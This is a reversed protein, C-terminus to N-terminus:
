IAQWTQVILKGFGKARAVIEKETWTSISVIEKSMTVESKAYHLTKKDKFGKNQADRNIKEGLITLNGLHWIFPELASANPWSAAKPNQPFVHELNAKDMGIEKTKTQMANALRTMLWLGEGRELTVSELSAKVDDDTVVLARLRAKAAALMKASTADEAYLNRIERAAEYVRSELDLPNQNTLVVYRVHTSILARLLKEFDAKSLCRYGALLLPPASSVQLYKIVGELDAFGSKSLPVNADLLAVYDDCEDACQEAFSVSQLEKDTLERKIAAFLGESKLDGFQSVWLHRLFRSVDRRGLDRLMGNWHQRVLKKATADPARRMLLNLVLDPVSLRLGRDNLTEFITYADEESQVLIAILTMGKTLADRYSKILKIAHDDSKGKILTGLREVSLQYAANLLGHSRLKSAPTTPPDTKVAKLFYPEDLDGLTLAYTTPETDKEILERQIDRALDGGKSFKKPKDLGRAVDRMAALAITATALRQQGDLLLLDDTREILVVSGLFYSATTPSKTFDNHFSGLDDWFTAVQGKEWSYSRQFEPLVVRRREWRGLLSGITFKETDFPKPM